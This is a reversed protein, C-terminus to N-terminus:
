KCASVIQHTVNTISCVWSVHDNQGILACLQSNQLVANVCQLCTHLQEGTPMTCNGLLWGVCQFFTCFTM